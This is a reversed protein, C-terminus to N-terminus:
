GACTWNSAGAGGAWLAAAAADQSAKDGTGGEMLQYYGEAGSGQSNPIDQGGSECSVVSYPIAWCQGGGEYPTLGGCGSSSAAAGGPVGSAVGGPDVTVVPAPPDCGPGNYHDQVDACGDDDSDPPPLRVVREVPKPVVVPPGPDIGGVARHVTLQRHITVASADSSLIALAAVACLLAATPTRRPM